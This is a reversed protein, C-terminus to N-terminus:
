LVPSAAASATNGTIQARLSLSDPRPSVEAAPADAEDELAARLRQQPRQTAVRNRTPRGTAASVPTAPDRRARAQLERHDEGEPQLKRAIRPHHKEREVATHPVVR